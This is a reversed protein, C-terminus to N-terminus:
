HHVYTWGNVLVKAGYSLTGLGSETTLTQTRGAFALLGASLCAVIQLKM